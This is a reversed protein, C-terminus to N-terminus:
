KSTQDGDAAEDAASADVATTGSVETAGSGATDVKRQVAGRSV